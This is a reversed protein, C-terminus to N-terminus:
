GPHRAELQTLERVLAPREKATSLLRVASVAGMALAYEGIVDIGYLRSTAISSGISLLITIVFTLAGFSAGERYSARHGPRLQGFLRARLGIM